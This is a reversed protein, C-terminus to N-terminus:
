GGGHGGSGEMEEFGTVEEGVFGRGDESRETVGAKEVCGSCFGASETDTEDNFVFFLAGLDVIEAVVGVLLVNDDGVGLDGSSSQSLLKGPLSGLPESVKDSSNHRTKTDSGHGDHSNVVSKGPM